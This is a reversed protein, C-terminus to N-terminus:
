SKCIKYFHFSYNNESKTTFIMGLNQFGGVHSASYLTLYQCKPTILKQTM